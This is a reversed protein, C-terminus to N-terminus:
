GPSSSFTSASSGFIRPRYSRPASRAAATTTDECQWRTGVISPCRSDTDTSSARLADGASATAAMRANRPSDSPRPSGDEGDVGITTRSSGSRGCGRSSRLVPPPMHATTPRTRAHGTRVSRKSTREWLVTRPAAPPVSRFASSSTALCRTGALDVAQDDHLEPPGGEGVRRPDQRHALDDALPDRPPREDDHRRERADRIEQLGGGPLRPLAIALAELR